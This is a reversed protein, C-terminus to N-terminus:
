ESKKTKSKTPEAAKKEEEAKKTANGKKAKTVVTAKKKKTAGADMEEKEAFLSQMEPAEINILNDLVVSGVDVGASALGEEMGLLVAESTLKMYLEISKRADDNGPIVHDIGKPSCNSDVVAIIPIGLKNAEAVALSEQRTDIIFIADPKGGMNRIGGLVKDLKIRKRDIDLKEKKNLYSNTDALMEEYKKLTNISASVTPWNTLMGGLWRHNVYFQGCRIAHEAVLESAQKKTGVFLIKGNKSAIDKLINLANNLLPVTQQLDIIHISNRTGYIYKAMKPNWFNKRHGFHVGANLLDRMTFNFSYTM